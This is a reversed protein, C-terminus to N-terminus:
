CDGLSCRAARRSVEVGHEITGFPQTRAISLEVSAEGCIRPANCAYYTFRDSGSAGSTNTYRMAGDVIEVDGYRPEDALTLTSPAMAEGRGPDNALVDITISASPAVFAADDNLLSLAGACEPRAAAEFLAAVEGTSAASNNVAVVLDLDPAILVRQGFLGVMSFRGGGEVWFQAGYGDNTPSPTRVFEAWGDPLLPEDEWVGGRLYLLGLRAFDRTAMNAQSGGYWVGTGDFALGVADIGLPTFLREYM